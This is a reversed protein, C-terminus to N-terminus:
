SLKLKSRLPSAPFGPHCWRGCKDFDNRLESYSCFYDAELAARMCLLDVEPCPQSWWGAASRLQASFEARWAGMEDLENAPEPMEEVPAPLEHQLPRTAFTRLFARQFLGHACTFFGVLYTGVQWAKWNGRHLMQATLAGMLKPVWARIKAHLENTNGCCQLCRHEAVPKRWDGNLVFTTVLRAIAAPRAKSSAQPTFLRLITMRYLAAEETLPSHVIRVEECIINCICKTFLELAGNSRLIKLSAIIGKQLESSFPWCKQAISHIKHAACGLHLKAYPTLLEASQTCSLKNHHGLIKEARLNGPYEDTEILRTWNEFGQAMENMNAGAESVLRAITEAKTNYAIRLQPSCAGRLSFCVRQAVDNPQAIEFQMVWEQEIVFVNCAQTYRQGDAGEMSMKLRTEDYRVHQLLTKGKITGAFAMMRIYGWANSMFENQLQCTGEALAFLARTVHRRSISLTESLDQLRSLISGRKGELVKAVDLFVNTPIPPAAVETDM